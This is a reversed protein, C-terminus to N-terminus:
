IVTAWESIQDKNLDSNIPILINRFDTHMMLRLPFEKELKIYHFIPIMLNIM